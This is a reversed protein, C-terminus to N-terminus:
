NDERKDDIDKKNNDLYKHGINGGILCFLIFDLSFWAKDSLTYDFFLDALVVIPFMRIWIYILIETTQLIGDKGKIANWFDKHQKILDYNVWILASFCLILNAIQYM